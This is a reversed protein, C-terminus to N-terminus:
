EAEEQEAQERLHLLARAGNSVAVGGAPILLADFGEMAERETLGLEFARVLHHATVEVPVPMMACACACILERYKAELSGPGPPPDIGMTRVYSEDFVDLFGPDLEAMLHHLPWTHGGRRSRIRQLVEDGSRERDTVDHDGTAGRAQEISRDASM